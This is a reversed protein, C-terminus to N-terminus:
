LGLSGLLQRTEPSAYPQSSILQWTEQPNRPSPTDIVASGPVDLGQSPLGQQTPIPASGSDLQLPAYKPTAQTQATEGGSVQAPVGVPPIKARGVGIHLHNFHNGGTNTNFLIQYGNVNFVGGTQQRAKSPDMGASILAAQGLKTLEEGEAPIDGATGRWHESQRNTGKVFQNHQTGTTITINKGYTNAISNAYQLVLPSTQVGERDAGPALTATFQSVNSDGLLSPVSSTVGANKLINQAHQNRQSQSGGVYPSQALAAAAGRLDSKRLASMVDRYFRLKFTAISAAVGDEPTKYNRVGHSNFRTAGEMSKSTAFPNNRAKTGEAGALGTFFGRVAANDELGLGQIVQGVFQQLDVRTGALIRQPSREFSTLHRQTPPSLRGPSPTGYM